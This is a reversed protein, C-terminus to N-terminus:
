QPSPYLKKVDMCIIGHCQFSFSFGTSALQFPLSGPMEEGYFLLLFLPSLFSPSCFFFLLFSHKGNEKVHKYSLLEPETCANILSFFNKHSQKKGPCDLLSSSVGHGQFM